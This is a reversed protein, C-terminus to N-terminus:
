PLDEPRSDAVFLCTPWQNEPGGLGPYWNEGCTGYASDSGALALAVGYSAETGPGDPTVLITATAGDGFEGGDLSFEFTDEGFTDAVLDSQEMAAVASKLSTPLAHIGLAKREMESLAWM